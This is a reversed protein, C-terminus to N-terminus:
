VLLGTGVAVSIRFPDVTVDDCHFGTMPNLLQVPIGMSSYIYNDIGRINALGGTIYIKSVSGGKIVSNYYGFSKSLEEVLLDLASKTANDLLSGDGIEYGLYLDRLSSFDINEKELIDILDFGSFRLQREFRVIGDKIVSLSTTKAGLDIIAVNNPKEEFLKFFLAKLAFPPITILDVKMDAHEILSVYQKLISKRAVYVKVLYKPVAEGEVQEIVKYDLNYEEPDFDIVKKLEWKVVEPLEDLPVVPVRIERVTVHSMNICLNLTKGKAGLKDRLSTLSPLVISPEEYPYPTTTNLPYIGCREIRGTKGSCLKVGKIASYGLEIAFCNRKKFFKKIM